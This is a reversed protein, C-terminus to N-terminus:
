CPFYKAMANHIVIVDIMHHEQPNELMYKKVVKVIQKSSSNEPLCFGIADNILKDVNRKDTVNSNVASGYVAGLQLARVATVIAATCALHAKPNLCLQELFGASKSDLNEASVINTSFSLCLIVLFNKLMM